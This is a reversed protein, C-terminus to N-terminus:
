QAREQKGSVKDASPDNKIDLQNVPYTEGDTSNAGYYNEDRLILKRLQKAGLVILTFAIFGTFAYFGWIGEGPAYSHRHVIIDLLFLFACLGALIKIALAISAPSEVWAFAKLIRKAASSQNMNPDNAM